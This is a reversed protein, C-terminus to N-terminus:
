ATTMGRIALGMAFLSALGLTLATRRPSSERVFTAALPLALALAAGYLVHQWEPPGSSPWALLGFLGQAVIGVEAIVLAGRFSPTPGPGVLGLAIGWVGAAALYLALATSLRSHLDLVDL